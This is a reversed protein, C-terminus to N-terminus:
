PSPSNTDDDPNLARLVFPLVKDRIVKNAITLSSDSEDPHAASFHWWTDKAFFMRVRNLYEPELYRMHGAAVDDLILATSLVEPLRGLRSWGFEVTFESRHPKSFIHLVIVALGQPAEHVFYYHSPFVYHSKGEYQKFPPNLMAVM